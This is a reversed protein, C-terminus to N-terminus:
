VSIWTANSHALLVGTPTYLASRVFGKRGQTGVTEGIIVCEEGPRPLVNIAVSIRGLVYPRGPAILAWGGPCDLAAWITTANVDGPVHWSAATRGDPIRGPFIRLGDGAARDPGCVYCTPFPHDTFGAYPGAAAPDAFAPAADLPETAAKGTAVVADGDRMEVKGPEAQVVVMPTDLPPPLRLTVTAPGSPLEGALLGATYGGNGSTPPGNFRGTVILKRKGM